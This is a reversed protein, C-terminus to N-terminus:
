ESTHEESRVEADHAVGVADGQLEPALCDELALLGDEQRIVAPDERAALVEVDVRALERVDPQRVDVDTLRELVGVPAGTGEGVPLEGRSLDPLTRACARCRDRGDAERGNGRRSLSLFAICMRPCGGVLSAVALRSIAVSLRAPSLCSMRSGFIRPMASSAANRSASIASVYMVAATAAAIHAHMVVVPSKMDIWEAVGPM